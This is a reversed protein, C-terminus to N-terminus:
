SIACCSMNSSSELLDRQLDHCQLSNNWACTAVLVRSQNAQQGPVMVKVSISHVSRFLKTPILTPGAFSPDQHWRSEAKIQKGTIMHWVHVAGDDGVSLCLPTGPPVSSKRRISQELYIGSSNVLPAPVQTTSVCQVPHNMKWIFKMRGKRLDWVRLTSDKSASVLLTTTRGRNSPNENQDLVNTISHIDDEKKTNMSTLSEASLTTGFSSVALSTITDSHGRLICLLLTTDLNWVFVEPHTGASFMLSEECTPQHVVLVMVKNGTYHSIMTGDMTQDLTPHVFTQLKRGTLADFSVIDNLVKKVMKDRTSRDSSSTTSRDNSEIIACEDSSALIQIQGTSRVACEVALIKVSLNSGSSLTPLMSICTICRGDFTDWIRIDGDCAGSVAVIRVKEEGTRQNLFLFETSVALCLVRDSHGILSPYLAQGDGISYRYIVSDACVCLIQPIAGPSNVIKVIQPQSTTRVIPFGTQVQDWALSGSSKPLSSTTSATSDLFDAVNQPFRTVTSKSYNDAEEYSDKGTSQQAHFDASEAYSVPIVQSKKTIKIQESSPPSYKYSVSSLASSYNGVNDYRSDNASSMRSLPLPVYEAESRPDSDYNSGESSSKRPRQLVEKERKSREKREKKERKKEKKVRKREKKSLKKSKKSMVSSDDSENSYHYSQPISVFSNRSTESAYSSEDHLDADDKRRSKKKKSKKSSM